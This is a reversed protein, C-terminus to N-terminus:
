YRTLSLKELKDKLKLCYVNEPDSSLGLETLESASDYNQLHLALWAMRSYDTADAESKRNWIVEFLKSLLEKKIAWNELTLEHISLMHNVKNVVNSLESFEIKAHQSAEILAHIEAFHDKMIRSLEAVHIWAAVKKSDDKENELYLYLYNIAEKILSQVNSESLWRALLLYGDNYSHCIREIIPKHINFNNVNQPLNKLFITLNKNISLIKDDLRTPGFKQLLTVDGKIISKLPSVSCKKEGFAMTVYPLGIYYQGDISSKVEEVMSYQILNDIAQEIELPEDFSNMIVSEFILRSVASNWSALTLFIRQTYPNLAAYTREFLATLIEDNGAVIKPLSTKKDSKAIEGLLIKIIYPHGASVKYIDEILEISLKNEINLKKATTKVLTESEPFTMGHVNLPYDGVFDRLRTTILIKNPNRIYTDVWKFQEVPNETTEFNDFVFLCPGIDSRTLQQQFYSVPDFEKKSLEEKSLVLSAYYKSIDKNSIVDARVIKAGNSQLDIDRSSFWVIAHFRTTSYLKPIVSLALSTKGIGGRGLLTVIPRREDELLEYLQEELKDRNIYDHIRNPVNSFCKEHAILEGLGESESAPLQGIPMLYPASSDHIKDDTCYSLLEFKTNSFGGNAIFFDQLDADSSILPVKRFTGLYIYVGDEYQYNDNTKLENFVESNGILESVRYKGSLNRRIFASPINLLTLNNIILNISKELHIAAESAKQAPIIGHGRTKNRLETFFKFWSKFDKKGNLKEIPIELKDLANILEEVAKYQWEEESTKKTFETQYPRFEAILHQSATGVLLSDIAKSWEGIGSARVLIYLIQYQDRDKTNNLASLIMLTIIKTIAEATVLLSFFFTFDSDSKAVTNKEQLMKIFKHM